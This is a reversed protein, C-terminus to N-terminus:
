RLLGPFLHVLSALAIAYALPHVERGRGAALKVLAYLVFGVAIGNSISFTFPMIVMAMFAPVAETFDEFNIGTVAGMMLIGVIILAPATAAAPVMLALPSFILSVLFLVGVTVATLGTRGGEAIGAASEIYTTVTSTGVAAGFMTGVADVVMAEKIRPLRGRADLMGARTATGMLTGVTDFVDVFLFAFIVMFGLGLAGGIDMKLFVPSLSAPAGVLGGGVRTVGLPIGIVTTLLIGILMAGRIKVLRFVMLVCTIVLGIVALRPEPATLDGLEVLTPAFATVIGANKMGILSIFLGIGVAVARKLSEPMAADVHTIAGTVSLLAFFVGSIFVAGLAVEWGAITSVYYAFFANLGMGSALAFPQRAWLGMLITTFAAALITATTVAARDMGANALILPNVFIIYAMTVFTTLGALVETRVSTNHAKLGFIRELM